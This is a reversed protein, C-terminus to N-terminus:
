FDLEARLNFDSCRGAPFGLAKKLNWVALAFLWTVSSSKM